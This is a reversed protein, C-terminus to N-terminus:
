DEPKYGSAKVIPGWREFDSKILRAFDAGSATAIEYAIETFAAKLEEKKLAERVANTLNGVTEVPTKAPLFIGMWDVFELSPYGVEKITPVDPLFPSRQPGTTALARLKGSQIHPLPTDIPVIATAIRGGLLDPVTSASGQYPVHTFEFGASRSLMFGTFHMPTGAGGTGYTALQPNTRCWAFLDAITKVQVPVVPGVSILYPFSCVMTVPIFDAFPDYKLSTYIHPFLGIMAAPTLTMTSGDATSSKLGTLAVRGSAGPRNEVIITSSYGKLENALLRAVFDANGGAPFGVLIRATKGSPQAFGCPIVGTASSALGAASATLLRRRSLLVRKTNMAHREQLVAISFTVTRAPAM